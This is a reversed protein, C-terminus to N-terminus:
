APKDGAQKEIPSAPRIRIEHLTILLLITLLVSGSLFWFHPIFASGVVMLLTLVFLVIVLFLVECGEDDCEALEFISGDFDAVFDVPESSGQPSTRTGEVASWAASSWDEAFSIGLLMSLIIGLVPVVFIRRPTRLNQNKFWSSRTVIWTVVGIMLLTPIVVPLGDWTSALKHLRLVFFLFIFFLLATVVVMLQANTFRKAKLDEIDDQVDGDIVEILPRAFRDLLQTFALISGAVICGIAMLLMVLYGGGQGRNLFSFLVTLAGGASGAAILFIGLYKKM